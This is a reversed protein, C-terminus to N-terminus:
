PRNSGFENANQNYINQVFMQEPNKTGIKAIFDRASNAQWYTEKQSLFNKYAMLANIGLEDKKEGLGEIAINILQNHIYHDRFLQHQADEALLLEWASPVQERSINQGMCNFYTRTVGVMFERLRKRATASQLLGVWFSIPALTHEFPQADVMRIELFGRLRLDPFLTGLHTEWDQLSPKTGKYGDNLWQEFKLEGFLPQEEISLQSIFMVGAQMAWKLYACPIDDAFPVGKPIGSRNSDTKEWIAQRESQYQANKGQFYRSNSFIHRVFPTILFTLAVAEAWAEDGFVDLNPQVTCTHRSMHLGRGGPQSGFYRSLMLYRSKPVLLPMDVLGLPNTGHSAFLVKGQAARTLRTLGNQVDQILNATKIHPASAYEVQGGPEISYNTGNQATAGIVVGTPEDIKLKFEPNEQALKEILQGSTMCSGPLGLPILNEADYVLMEMELAQAQQHIKQNAGASGRIPRKWLGQCAERSLKQQPEQNQSLTAQLKQADDTRM